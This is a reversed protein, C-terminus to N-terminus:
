PHFPQSLVPQQPQSGHYGPMIRWQVSSGSPAQPEQDQPWYSTPQVSNRFRRFASDGPISSKTPPQFDNLTPPM